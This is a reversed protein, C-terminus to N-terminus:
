ARGNTFVERAIQEVEVLMPSERGMDVLAVGRRDAEMVSEDFPVAALLHVHHREFYERVADADREDRVKNAVAFIREIGLERALEATRGAVELSKYYPEAVVLMADVYRTTGRRLHELGAEMDTVTIGTDDTM